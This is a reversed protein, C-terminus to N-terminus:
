ETGTWRGLWHLVEEHWQISNAPKLIWHNEEPFILLRSPIKRRQAATFAAVGQAYPV